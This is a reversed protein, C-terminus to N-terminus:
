QSVTYQYCASELVVASTEMDIVRFHIDFQMDLPITALDRFWAIHSPEGVTWTEDAHQLERLGGPSHKSGLLRWGTRGRRLGNHGHLGRLQNGTAGHSTM